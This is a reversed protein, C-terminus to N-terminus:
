QRIQGPPVKEARVKIGTLAEFQPLLGLLNEFYSAPIVAVSISEGEAQRWNIKAKQYPSLDAPAQALADAMWGSGLGAAGLAAAQGLFRRRSTGDHSDDQQM